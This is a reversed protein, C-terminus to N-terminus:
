EDGGKNALYFARAFGQSCLSRFEADTKVTDVAFAFEPIDTIAHWHLFALSPKTRGPRVYLAPNKTCTAWTHTPSPKNFNGWLATKKSWPSGYQYPHYIMAPEGLFDKLRGNAPNEIVWFKPKCESIIRQCHNVLFVGQMLDGVHNFNKATSFETCVPNAIIGFVEGNFTFNEVGIDKGVKIVDFEPDNQFPISDSGTDACLHLIVKKKM